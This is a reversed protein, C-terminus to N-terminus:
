VHARERLTGQGDRHIALGARYVHIRGAPRPAGPRRLFDAQSRADRACQGCGGCGPLGADPASHFDQAWSQAHVGRRRPQTRSSEKLAPWPQREDYRTGHGHAGLAVAVAMAAVRRSEELEPAEEVIVHANTGGIGFSSVGARRPQGNTKWDTLKTNVYFPSNAFDIAPNPEEFNLSPPIKKHKLALAAKILGAVGAAADAHGINTKLSGIACIGRADTSQRFVQNLATFEIPDGVVTGTGHAEIYGITRPAVGAVAQATAIVAAQGDVNPATYGVKLSGDNNIASGKIIAYITDGDAVADALRKLVVVGVGSGPALGTAKADFARCRGDRSMIGGEEYQYGRKQPLYVSVGGALAVDCQYNLLSQCAVHVAVLSTSCATQISMSPGRLGLKYSVRTTLFDNNNGLMLQYDSVSARHGAPGLLNFLRYTNSGAGAYVGILGPYIDPNHGAQELAEWACELFLRQQPDIIEAERPNFGFFRADFLEVGDLVTGIKVYRPDNLTGPDIGAATLEEDTFVSISEVGDRLNHWFEELNRAGPFRGTMGIIAIDLGAPAHTTDSMPRDTM